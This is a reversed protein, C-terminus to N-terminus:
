ADRNTRRAVVVRPVGALDPRIAVLTLRPARAIMERIPADQDVGCEFILWTETGGRADATRILARIADLGDAGGFLAEPPEYDRVEPPLSGHQGAPIYPPNSVIVDASGAISALDGQVFAIRREVGHREANRRAVALARESIDTAVIRAAPLETALAIAVCGSGTGLDEIRTADPAFERVAEILGETEPRPTLVDRTVEFELGWFERVGLIQSIPERRARRAILPDFAAPFHPPAADRWSAIVRTRDWGLARAALLQADLQAESPEIGAAALRAAADSTYAHLTV